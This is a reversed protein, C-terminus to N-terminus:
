LLAVHHTKSGAGSEVEPEGNTEEVQAEVKAETKAEGKPEVKAEVNLVTAPEEKAELKAMLQNRWEILPETEQLLGEAYYDENAKLELLLRNVTKRVRALEDFKGPPRKKETDEPLAGAYILAQRLSQPKLKLVDQASHRASLLMYYQAKRIKFQLNKQCWPEFNGHGIAAKITRLWNGCEIARRIAETGAELVTRAFGEIEANAKNIDKAIRDFEAQRQLDPLKQLAKADTAESTQVLLRPGKRKSM